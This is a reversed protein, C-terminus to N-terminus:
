CQRTGIVVAGARKEVSANEDVSDVQIAESQGDFFNEKAHQTVM